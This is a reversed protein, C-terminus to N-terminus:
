LREEENTKSMPDLLSPQSEIFSDNGLEGNGRDLKRLYSSRRLSIGIVVLLGGVGWLLYNKWETPVGIVPLFLILIGLLLVISERSM